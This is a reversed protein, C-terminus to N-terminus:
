GAERTPLVDVVRHTDAFTLVTAYTHRRKIAFDDVGLVQPTCYSRRATPTYRAPIGDRIDVAEARVGRSPTGM